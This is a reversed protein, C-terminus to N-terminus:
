LLNYLLSFLTRSAAHFSIKCPIFATCPLLVHYLFQRFGLYYFTHAGHYVLSFNLVQSLIQFLYFSNDTVGAHVRNVLNEARQCDFQLHLQFCLQHDEMDICFPIVLEWTCLLLSDQLYM